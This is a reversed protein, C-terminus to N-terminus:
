ADPCRELHLYQRCEDDTFGRTLRDNAIAILDDLDLAWVRAIGDTGVSALKSGDPSFAVTCSVAAVHGPLVQVTSGSAPGVRTGHRRLPRDGGDDRGPQVDVDNVLGRHGALTTLRAGTEVDWSEVIGELWRGSVIRDGTPDFVVVIAQTDITRVMEGREWDWISVARRGTPSRDLRSSSTALLRGDPSFSM